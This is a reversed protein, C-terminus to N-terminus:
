LVPPNAFERQLPSISILVTHGWSEASYDNGINNVVSVQFYPGHEEDAIGLRYKEDPGASFTYTKQEAGNTVLCAGVLTDQAIATQALLSLGLSLIIKKM